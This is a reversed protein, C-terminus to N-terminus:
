FFFFNRFNLFKLNILIFLISNKILEDYNFPLKFEYIKDHIMKNICGHSVNSYELVAKIINSLYVSKIENSIKFRIIDVFDLMFLTETPIFITPYHNNERDYHQMIMNINNIIKELQFIYDNEYNIINEAVILVDPQVVECDFKNKSEPNIIEFFEFSKPYRFKFNSSKSLYIIKKNYYKFLINSSGLSFGSSGLILELHDEIKFDCNYNITIINDLFENIFISNVYYPYDEINENMLKNFYNYFDPLLTRSIQLIPETCIFKIKKLYNLQNLNNINGPICSLNNSIHMKKRLMFPWSLIEDLNTFIVLDTDTLIENYDSLIIEDLFDIFNQNKQPIKNESFIENINKESGLHSNFNFINKISLIEAETFLSGILINKQEFSIKVFKGTRGINLYKINM